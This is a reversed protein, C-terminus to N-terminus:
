ISSKLRKDGKYASNSPKFDLYCSLFLTRNRGTVAVYSGAAKREYAISYGVACSGAAKREDISYGM